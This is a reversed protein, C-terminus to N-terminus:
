HQSPDLAVRVQVARPGRETLEVRFSVAAGRRLMQQSPALASIHVFLEEGSDDHIFGFGRRADFWAVTGHRARDLRALAACGPCRAPASWLGAAHRERQEAASDLFRLSCVQCALTRDHLVPQQTMIVIECSFPTITAQLAGSWTIM